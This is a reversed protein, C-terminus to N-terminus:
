EQRKLYVKAEAEKRLVRLVGEALARLEDEGPSVIVKAIWSVREEIGRCLERSHALGGTIVIADLEGRLVAAMAGIEKGIQHCLAEFILRAKGDGNEAMKMVERFDNTGLHAALGGQGTIKKNIEDKTLKGSFCMDILGQAPVTGAREPSMPGTGGLAQNVDIVRGRCHAGVSVGGGLHAIIFSCEDYPRGLQRAIRYAVARQNLAHFISRFPLEPVGSIAAEPVREDVVVPDVIYAPRGGAELALRRALPAGLNSAHVGYGEGYIDELMDDNVVWAGSEVPRLLGGRGAFADIDSAKTDHRELMQMIKQYRFEIKEDMTVSQAIVEVPYAESESWLEKDDDFLAVKTSTSGPNIAFIKVRM